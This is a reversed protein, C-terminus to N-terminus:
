DSNAVPAPQQGASARKGEQTLVLRAPAAVEVSLSVSFFAALMLALASASSFFRASRPNFDLFFASSKRATLSRASAEGHHPKDLLNM